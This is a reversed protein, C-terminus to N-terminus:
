SMSLALARAYVDRRKHGTEEAVKDVADRVSLVALAVKLMADVEDLSPLPKDEAPPGIVVVIEGKPPEAAEYAAALEALSGRRVEEFLKTLERAVAAPRPGLTEVMAALSAALRPGSEFIILTAPVAALEALERRRAGDKVPLFGAFLFRDSPLGSLALATLAASPGPLATVPMGARQAAQVLKLGPDAVLPMGADSILAVSRGQKVAEILRERDGDDAHDDYRELRPAKLGLAALLRRAVRTDEAAIVDVQGLLAAARRTIDGLNGIPTAVLYLGAGPKGATKPTEGSKSAEPPHSPQGRNPDRSATV